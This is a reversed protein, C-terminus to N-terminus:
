WSISTVLRGILHLVFGVLGIALIGMGAVKAVTKFETSDPKRTIRLVRMAEDVFESFSGM